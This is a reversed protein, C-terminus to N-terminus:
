PRLKTNTLRVHCIAAFIAKEFCRPCKMNIPVGTVLGTPGAACEGCVIINCSKCYQSAIRFKSPSSGTVMANDELARPLALCERWCEQCELRVPNGNREAASLWDLERHTRSSKDM